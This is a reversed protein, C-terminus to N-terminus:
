PGTPVWLLRTGTLRRELRTRWSKSRWAGLWRRQEGGLVVAGYRTKDIEERLREATDGEIVKVEFEVGRERARAAFVSVTDSAQAELCAEVHSLYEERGQAYIESAFQKLYPDKVHVAVVSVGNEAALSLAREVARETHPEGDIAVLIPGDLAPAM